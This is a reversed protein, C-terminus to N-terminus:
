PIILYTGEIVLGEFLIRFTMRSAEICGFSIADGISSLDRVYLMLKPSDPGSVLTRQAIIAVCCLNPAQTGTSISSIVDDSFLTKNKSSSQSM